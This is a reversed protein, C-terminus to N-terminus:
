LLHGCREIQNSHLFALLVELGEAFFLLLPLVIIEKQVLPVVRDVRLLVFQRLIHQLRDCEVSRVGLYVLIGVVQRIRLDAALLAMMRTSCAGARGVAELAM